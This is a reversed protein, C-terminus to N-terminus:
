VFDKKHKTTGNKALRKRDAFVACKNFQKAYKAVFNRDDQKVTKM